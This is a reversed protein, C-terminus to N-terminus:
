PRVREFQLLVHDGVARFLPLCGLARDFKELQSIVKTHTIARSRIYSPPVTLGVARLSKLHFWPAFSHRISRITPYWVQVSQDAVRAISSGRLRRLAKRPSAHLAFWLVEWLCFRTSLCILVPAGPKTLAALDCSVRQLDAICNFGSFNSLVGDFPPTSRLLGINETRLLQFEVSSEPAESEKRRQAVQIMQASADCAVVSVGRRSLFLADEGTGCNLELIRDGPRFASEIASWVIGRQARGVSSRTFLEDYSKALTGFVTSADVIPLGATHTM